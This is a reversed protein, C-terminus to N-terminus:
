LMACFRTSSVCHVKVTSALAAMQLPAVTFLSCDRSTCTDELRKCRYGNSLVSYMYVDLEVHARDELYVVRMETRSCARTDNQNRKQIATDDPLVVFVAQLEWM